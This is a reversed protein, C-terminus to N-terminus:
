SKTQNINLCLKTARNISPALNELKWNNIPIDFYKKVKFDIGDIIEIEFKKEVGYFDYLYQVYEGIPFEGLSFIIKYGRSHPLIEEVKATLENGNLKIPIEKHLLYETEVSKEFTLFSFTNWIKNCNDEALIFFNLTDEPQVEGEVRAYSLKQYKKITWKEEAFSLNNHNIILSLYIFNLLFFIYFNIKKMM